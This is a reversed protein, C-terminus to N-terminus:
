SAPRAVARRHMIDELSVGLVTRQYREYSNLLPEDCVAVLADAREQGAQRLADEEAFGNHVLYRAYGGPIVKVAVSKMTTASPQVSTDGLVVRRYTAYSQQGADAQNAPPREQATAAAFVFTAAIGLALKTRNM